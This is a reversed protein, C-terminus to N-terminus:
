LPAPPPDAEIPAACRPPLQLQCGRVTVRGWFQHSPSLQSPGSSRRRRPAASPRPAPPPWHGNASQWRQRPAGAGGGRPRPRWARRFGGEGAVASVGLSGARGRRRGRSPRARFGAAPLDPSGGGGGGAGQRGRRAARLGRRRWRHLQRFTRQDVTQVLASKYWATATVSNLAQKDSFM